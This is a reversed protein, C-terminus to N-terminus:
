VCVCAYLYQSHVCMCVFAFYRLRVFMCSFMHLWVRACLSVYLQETTEQNDKYGRAVQIEGTELQARLAQLVLLALRARVRICFCVFLCVFM